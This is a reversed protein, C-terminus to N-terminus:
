NSVTVNFTVEADTEGTSCAATSGKEPEHKLTVKLTGTGAATTSFSGKLGLTQNNTDKDTVTVTPMSGTSAYCILHEASEEEVEETIDEIKGSDSEDLFSVSLTYSSNSKLLVEDGTPPLGGDGDLDRVNFVTTQNTTTNTISLRVTTILEQENEADLDKDKECSSFSLALLIVLGFLFSPKSTM